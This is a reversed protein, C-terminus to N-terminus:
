RVCFNGKGDKGVLGATVAIELIDMMDAESVATGLESVLAEHLEQTSNPGRGRKASFGKIARTLDDTTM